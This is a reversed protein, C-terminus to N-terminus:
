LGVAMAPEDLTFAFRYAGPYASRLYWPGASPLTVETMTAADQTRITCYRGLPQGSADVVDLYCLPISSVTVRIVQGAGATFAFHDLADGRPTAGTYWTRPQVVVEGSPEGPADRGSGADDQAETTDPTPTADLIHLSYAAGPGAPGADIVGGRDPVLPFRERLLTWTPVYGALVAENPCRNVEDDFETAGREGGMVSIGTAASWCDTGDTGTVAGYLDMAGFAYHGMEHNLVAGVDDGTSVIGAQHYLNMWIAEDPQQIADKYTSAAGQPAADATFIVDVVRRCSPSASLLTVVQSALFCSTWGSNHYEVDQLLVVIKGPRVEGDTADNLRAAYDVLGARLARTEVPENALVLLNLVYAEGDHANMANALRLARPVGDGATFCLSRGVPLGDLVFAHATRATAEEMTREPGGDVSWSLRSRVPDVSEWAVVARFGTKLAAFVLGDPGEGYTATVPAGTGCTPDAGVVPPQQVIPPVLSSIAGALPAVALVLIAAVVLRRM